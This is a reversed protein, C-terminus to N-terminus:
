EQVKRKLAKAFIAFVWLPTTVLGAILLGGILSDKAWERSVCDGFVVPTHGGVDENMVVIHNRQSSKTCEAFDWSQAEIDTAAVHMPHLRELSYAWLAGGVLAIVFVIRCRLQWASGIDFTM